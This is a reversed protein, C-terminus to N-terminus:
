SCSSHGIGFRGSGGEVPEPRAEALEPRPWDFGECEIHFHLTDANREVSYGLKELLTGHDTGTNPNFTQKNIAIYGTQSM